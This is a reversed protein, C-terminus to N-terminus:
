RGAAQRELYYAGFTGPELLTVRLPRVELM